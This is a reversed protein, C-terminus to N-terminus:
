KICDVAVKTIGELRYPDCHYQAFGRDVSTLFSDVVENGRYLFVKIAECTDDYGTIKITHANPHSEEIWWKFDQATVTNVFLLMSIIITRM